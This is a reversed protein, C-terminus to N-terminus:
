AHQTINKANENMFKENFRRLYIFKNTGKRDIDHAVGVGLTM